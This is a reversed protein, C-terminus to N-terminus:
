YSGVRSSKVNVVKDQGFKFGPELFPYKKRAVITLDPLKVTTIYPCIVGKKVQWLIHDDITHGQYEANLDIPPMEEEWYKRAETYKKDRILLSFQEDPILMEACLTLGKIGNNCHDCGDPNHFKINEVDDFFLTRLSDKYYDPVGAVEFPIGCHICTKPLLSQYIILSFFWPSM